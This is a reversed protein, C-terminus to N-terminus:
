TRVQPPDTTLLALKARNRLDYVTSRAIQLHQMMEKTTYVKDMRRFRDLDIDVAPRGVPKGSKTGMAKARAVGARVREQLRLQEQRALTAMLAILAEKFIGCTDLWQETYSRFRVGYRDLKRLHDMTGYAGERCFRDLSWFVVVDFKRLRADDFMRMFAERTPKDGHDRDEYVEVVDWEQDHCFAKLVPLQNEVTQGKDRTSVRVYLAARLRLSVPVPKM